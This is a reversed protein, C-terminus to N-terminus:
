EYRFAPADKKSGWFISREAMQAVYRMIRDGPHLKQQSEDTYRWPKGKQWEEFVNSITYSIASETGARLASNAIIGRFILNSAITKHSDDFVAVYCNVARGIVNENLVIGIQQAEIGSLTVSLKSASTNNEETIEGVEGLTGVGFYVYGGIQIEGVGTHVRSVGSDFMFEAAMVMNVHPQMMAEAVSKSFPASIM